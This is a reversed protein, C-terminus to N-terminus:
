QLHYVNYISEQIRTIKEQLQEISLFNYYGEGYRSSLIEPDIDSYEFLLFLLQKILQDKTDEM